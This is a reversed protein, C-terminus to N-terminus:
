RAPAALLRVREPWAETKCETNHCADHRQRPLPIQHLQTIRQESTRAQQHARRNKGLVVRWQNGVGLQNGIGFCETSALGDNM